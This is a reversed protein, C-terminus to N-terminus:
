EDTSLLPELAERWIRYGDELPHLYDPFVASPLKGGSTFRQYTVDKSLTFPGYFGDVAFSVFDGAGPAAGGAWSEALAFDSKDSGIIFTDGLSGAAAASITAILVLKKIQKM